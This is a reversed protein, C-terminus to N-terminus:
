SVQDGIYKQSWTGRVSDSNGVLFEVNAVASLNNYVLVRFVEGREPKGERSPRRMLVANEREEDPPGFRAIVDAVMRIGRFLETIRREEQKTVHSVETHQRRLIPLLLGGDPRGPRKQRLRHLIREPARGVSHRPGARELRGGIHRLRLSKKAGTAYNTPHM